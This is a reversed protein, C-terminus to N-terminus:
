PEVTVVFDGSVFESWITRLAIPLDSGLVELRYSGFVYYSGPQDFELWNAVNAEIRHTEGPRLTPFTSIDNTRVPWGTRSVSEGERTASFRFPLRTANIFMFSTEGVNTIEVVIPVAGGLKITQEQPSFRVLPRHGPHYRYVVETGFYEAVHEANEAGSLYIFVTAQSDGGGSETSIYPVDDIMLALRPFTVGSSLLHQVSFDPLTDSPYRLTVQFVENNNDLAFVSNEDLPVELKEGLWHLTGNQSFVPQATDQNSLEYLGDEYPQAFVGGSFLSLAIVRTASM